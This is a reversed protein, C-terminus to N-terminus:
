CSKFKTANKSPKLKNVEKWFETYHKSKLSDAIKDQIFKDKNQKAFKIAQHYKARTLKRINAIQGDAPRDALKWIDHWYISKMKYERVYLNWGPIINNSRNNNFNVEPISLATAAIMASVINEFYEFILNSHTKCFLNNCELMENSIDISDLFCDLIFKYNCINQYAAENWNFFSCRNSEFINNVNQEGNNTNDSNFNINFDSVHDYVICYKLTIFIPLHDSLNDGDSMVNFNLLCNYLNENFIFHDITSRAGNSSMYTFDTNNFVEYSSLLSENSLFSILNLLNPSDRCFDVNLDGGIICDYGEHSALLGSIENLVDSFELFSSNNHFDTPM